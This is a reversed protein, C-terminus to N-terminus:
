ARRDVTLALLVLGVLSLVALVAVYSAREAPPHLQDFTRLAGALAGGAFAPLAVLTVLAESRRRRLAAYGTLVALFVLWCGIFRGGLPPLDFPFTRGFKAPDIWLEIGHGLFALSFLGLVVAVWGLLPAEDGAVVAQRGPPHAILIAAVLIPTVAFLVIWLIALPRDFDFTARHKLTVVLTPVTLALISVTLGRTEPWTRRLAYGFTVASALYLGGVLAVLPEPALSWSFTRGTSGPFALLLFGTLGAAVVVGAFVVRLAADPWRREGPKPADSGTM